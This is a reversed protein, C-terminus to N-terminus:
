LLQLPRNYGVSRDYKTYKLRWIESHTSPITVLKTNCNQTTIGKDLEDLQGKKKLKKKLSKVTKEYLKEEQGNQEGRGAGRSEGSKKQGLLRKVVLPTNKGFAAIWM